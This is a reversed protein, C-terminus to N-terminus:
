TGAKKHNEAAKVHELAENLLRRVEAYDGKKLYYATQNVTSKVRDRARLELTGAM